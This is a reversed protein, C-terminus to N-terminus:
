VVSKRDEDAGVRSRTTFLNVYGIVSVQSIVKPPYAIADEPTRLSTLLIWVLPILSILTYGIVIFAAFRRAAATPELPSHPITKM